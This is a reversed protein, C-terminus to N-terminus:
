DMRFIVLQMYEERFGINIKKKEIDNVFGDCMEYQQSEGSYTNGLNHTMDKYPSSSFISISQVVPNSIIQLAWGSNPFTFMVQKDDKIGMVLQLAALKENFIVEERNNLAKLQYPLMSALMLLFIAKIRKVKVSSLARFYPTFLVLLLAWLIIAPTTYRSSLAQELGQSVRGTATAFATGGIYIIGIIVATEYAKNEINKFNIMLKFFHYGFGLVFLLGSFLAIYHRGGIMYYFPSGLYVFVYELTEVPYLTLAQSISTHGAGKISHYGYFFLFFSAVNLLLTILLKSKPLRYALSLLLLLPMALVGNAMSGISIFAFFNALFFYVNKNSENYKALSYFASIPLLYALIFQSQFGWTM